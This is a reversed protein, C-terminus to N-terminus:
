MEEPKATGQRNKSRAARAKGKWARSSVVLVPCPSHRVIGEATSGLLAHRLGTRGHTACIILDFQEKRAYEPVLAAPSGSLVDFTEVLPEHPGMCLQAASRDATEKGIKTLSELDYAAQALADATAPFHVCHILTIFGGYQTAFRAAYRVTEVSRWSFDTPVLIRRLRIPEQEAEEDEHFGRVVLVPVPARRIVKEAISGMLLHRLGTRGHTSIVMLDPRTQYAIFAIERDPRGRRVEATFCIGARASDKALKQIDIDCRDLAEEDTVFLPNADTNSLWPKPELVHLLHIHSRDGEGLHCAYALARSSHASFDVPVLMNRIMPRVRYDSVIVQGSREDIVQGRFVEKVNM